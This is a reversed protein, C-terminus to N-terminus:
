VGEREIIENSLEDKEPKTSVSHELVKNLGELGAEMALRVANQALHRSM